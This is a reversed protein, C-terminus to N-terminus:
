RSLLRSGAACGGSRVLLRRSFLSKWATSTRVVRASFRLGLQATLGSSCCKTGNAPSRATLHLNSRVSTLQRTFKLEGIREEKITARPLVYDALTPTAPRSTETRISPPEGNEYTPDSHTILRLAATSNRWMVGSRGDQLENAPIKEEVFDQPPRITYEGVTFEPGLQAILESRPVTAPLVRWIKVTLGILLSIGVVVSICVGAVTGYFRLEERDVWRSWRSTKRQQLSVHTAGIDGVPDYSLAELPDGAPTVAAPIKVLRTCTPCQVIQGIVSDDALLVQGCPCAVQMPM